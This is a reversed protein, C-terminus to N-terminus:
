RRECELWVVIDKPTCAGETSPDIRHSHLLRHIIRRLRERRPVELLSAVLLTRFHITNDDLTVIILCIFFLAGEYLLVMLVLVILAAIKSVKFALILNLCLVLCSVSMVVTMLVESIFVLRTKFTFVVSHVEIKLM